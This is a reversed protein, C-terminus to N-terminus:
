NEFFPSLSAYSKEGGLCRRGKLKNKEKDNRGKERGALQVEKAGAEHGRSFRVHAELFAM